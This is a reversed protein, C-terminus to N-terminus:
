LRSTRVAPDRRSRPSKERKEVARLVRYVADSDGFWYPPALREYDDILSRTDKKPVERGIIVPATATLIMVTYRNKRGSAHDYAILYKFTGTFHFAETKRLRIM